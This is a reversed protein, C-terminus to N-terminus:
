ESFFVVPWIWPVVLYNRLNEITIKFDWNGSCERFYDRCYTDKVGTPDSCSLKIRGNTCKLERVNYDFESMSLAVLFGMGLYLGLLISATKLWDPVNRKLKTNM